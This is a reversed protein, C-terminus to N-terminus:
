RDRHVMYAEQVDEARLHKGGNMISVSDFASAVPSAVRSSYYSQAM